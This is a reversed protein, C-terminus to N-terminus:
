LGFEHLRFGLRSKKKSLAVDLAKDLWTVLTVKNLANYNNRVM